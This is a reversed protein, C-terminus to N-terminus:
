EDESSPGAGVAGRYFSPRWVGVEMSGEGKGAGCMILNILM